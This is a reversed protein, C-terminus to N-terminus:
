ETWFVNDGTALFVETALSVFSESDFVIAGATDCSTMEVDSDRTLREDDRGWQLYMLGLAMGIIVLIGLSAVAYVVM